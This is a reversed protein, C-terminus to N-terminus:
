PRVLRFGVSNSKVTPVINLRYASRLHQSSFNWSGGRTVRSTGSSPGKPNTQAGSPYAGFWDWCWEWVNGSMDYLGLANPKKTGVVQTSRGSNGSHWAVEDVNNSGSYTFNGLSGNGGRVAYEWEAETPLRYGNARSNWRLTRDNGTGRITYAPMLGERQSLRNCYEIADFWSINEVPLNDGKYHSPDTGMVERWEKQTVPYRGMSFASITVRRVNNGEGMQFSGGPIRIMGPELAPRQPVAAPTTVAPAPQPTPTVQPPPQTTVAPAPTPTVQAPPPTVAVPAPQAPPQTTAVPAPQAPPQTVVAPAPTPTVQAPPPTVAVPAPPTPRQGLFIRTAGAFRVSMEPHQVGRTVDIVDGMTRDFVDHVSLGPTRLNTLLHGTFLGNRGTGDSATQGAGAAYMIITGTPARGVVSLGRSGSRAWGFPNDRCADLVVMNLENGAESLNDLVFQLSVARERLHTENRINDATVPILYNEGNYQVGHGAFYFFGYTNRSAGLRRRLNLVATEMRELNGDLVKEVTFGLARLAAEMDNADNLPNRLRSIGTYNSNGIVLAFKQPETNQQAFSLGATLLFLGIFIKKM